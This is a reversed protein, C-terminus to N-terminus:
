GDLASIALVKSDRASLLEAIRNFITQIEAVSMASPLDQKNALMLVPLGEIKDSLLVSESIITKFRQAM